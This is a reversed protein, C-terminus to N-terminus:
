AQPSSGKRAVISLRTETCEVSLTAGIDALARPVLGFQVQSARLPAPITGAALSEWLVPDLRIKDAEGVVLWGEPGNAIRIQGGYPMAAEECMLLLLALKVEARSRASEAAWHVKLRGSGYLATLIGLIEARGVDQEDGAQGFAIRYFRLRAQANEVSERILDLEPGDVASSGMGILEVGNGIAGVPSVLDHCLRSGILACLDVEDIQFEANM